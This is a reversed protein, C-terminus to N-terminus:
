IEVLTVPASVHFTASPTNTSVMLGTTGQAQRYVTVGNVVGNYQNNGARYFGTDPDLVYSHAPASVTGDGTMIRTSSIVGTTSLGTINSLTDSATTYTGFGGFAGGNNYQVQGSTGGPTTTGGSSASDVYPRNSYISQASATTATLLLLAILRYM